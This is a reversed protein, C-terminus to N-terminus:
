ASRKRETTTDEVIGLVRGRNSARGPSWEEGVVGRSGGGRRGIAEELGPAPSSSRSSSRSLARSSKVLRSREAAGLLPPSAEAADDDDDPDPSAFGTFPSPSPSPSGSGLAGLRRAAFCGVAAGGGSGGLPAYADSASSFSVRSVRSATRPSSVAVPAMAPSSSSAIISSNTLCNSSNAPACSISEM